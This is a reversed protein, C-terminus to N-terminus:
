TRKEKNDNYDAFYILLSIAFCVIVNFNIMMKISQFLSMSLLFLLLLFINAINIFKNKTNIIYALAILAELVTVVWGIVPIMNEPALPCLTSVHKFFQTMSGWSVGTEGFHGWFGFRDFVASLYSIALSVKAFYIGRNQLPLELFDFM